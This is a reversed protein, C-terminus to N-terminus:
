PRARMVRDNLRSLNRNWIWRFIPAAIKGGIVGGMWWPFELQENWTVTTASSGSAELSFRGTGTVAGRHTVGMLAGDEWEIITMHDTTTLPGIKTKCAFSTGVGRRQETDFTIAVADAMWEVHEEVKELEAWVVDPTTPIEISITVRAGPMM